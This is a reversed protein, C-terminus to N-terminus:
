SKKLILLFNGRLKKFENVSCKQAPCSRRGRKPKRFFFTLIWLEYIMLFFIETSCVKEEM